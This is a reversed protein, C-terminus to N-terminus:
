ICDHHEWIPRKEKNLANELKDLSKELREIQRFPAEPDELAGYLVAGEAGDPVPLGTVYCITPILDVLHCPKKLRSGKRIGRGMLALLSNLRGYGYHATPLIPGHQAGFEPYIAYVVDGVDDGYLGILRADDRTVAMAVPRKGTAPDVYTLLADIIRRQVKEYDEPEVIGEPDRGKLNVYVYLGRSPSCLSRSFDVRSNGFGMCRKEYEALEGRPGSDEAIYTHCLGAEELPRLPSFPPGDPTCGHDSVVAILTDKGCANMVRGVLADEISYLKRHIEWTAARVEPDDSTFPDNFVHYFWDIPHSHMAFVSWDDRALEEEAMEALFTSLSETMELWTDVDIVERLYLYIGGGRHVTGRGNHAVKAFTDPSTTFPCQTPVLAGVVLCFEDADDSLIFPKVRTFTEHKKGDATEIVPFFKSSWQGKKVTVFAHSYDKDPSLTVTDYGESGPSRTVLIHWTTQRPEILADFFPVDFTMELPDEGLDPANSWGEADEFRGRVSFPLYDTSVVFDQCLAFEIEEFPLGYRMEGPVMGCGGYMTVHENKPPWAVPYTLVVSKKNARAAADWLTEVKVLSSDWAQRTNANEPNKGPLQYHFDTVGHTGPYAGTAITTWNPPTITPLPCLCDDAFFGNDIIKKMNPLHGDRIMDLMLQPQACDLGIIAVKKSFKPMTTEKSKQNM